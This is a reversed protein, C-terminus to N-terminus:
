PNKTLRQGDKTEIERRWARYLNSGNLQMEKPTRVGQKRLFDLIQYKTKM